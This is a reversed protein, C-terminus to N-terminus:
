LVGNQQMCTSHVNINKPVDLKGYIGADVWLFQFKNGRQCVVSLILAPNGRASTENDPMRGLSNESLLNGADLLITVWKCM